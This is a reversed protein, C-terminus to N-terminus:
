FAGAAKYEQFYRNVKAVFDRTERFPPIGGYKRVNGPGANYAALARDLNGGQERLMQALYRSGGFINQRPDLPNSVGMARSTGPMLQMLGRAGASSGANPNFTSEKRIVAKVLNPDLGYKEAAEKIISDYQTNNPANGTGSNAVEKGNLADVTNQGVIGDARLGHERQYDRVAKQTAPGFVGDQDEMGLRRQLDKVGDGESGRRLAKGDPLSFPDENTQPQDTGTQPQDTGTQPQDTGTQPQDTGTQPQDTGANPESQSPNNLAELTKPGVVGDVGLGNKKQFARVAEQTKPGFKGDVELQAGGGNLMEQLQKTKDADASGRRLMQNEGLELKSSQPEEPAGFASLLGRAAQEGNASTTENVAQLNPGSSSPTSPSSTPPNSTSQTRPTSRTSTTTTSRQATSSQTAGVAM